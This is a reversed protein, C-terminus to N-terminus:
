SRHACMLCRHSSAFHQPVMPFADGMERHLRHLFGMVAARDCSMSISLLSNVSPVDAFMLGSLRSRGDFSPTAVENRVLVFDPRVTQLRPLGFERASNAAAAGSATKATERVEVCLGASSYTDAHM